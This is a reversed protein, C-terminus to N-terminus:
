GSLRRSIAAFVDGFDGVDLMMASSSFFEVSKDFV